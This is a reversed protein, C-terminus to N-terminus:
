NFSLFMLVASNRREILYHLKKTHTKTQNSIIKDSLEFLTASFRDPEDAARFLGPLTSPVTTAVASTAVGAAKTSSTEGRMAPM